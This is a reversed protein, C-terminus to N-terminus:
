RGVAVPAAGRRDLGQERLYHSLLDAVELNNLDSIPFHTNGTVGMDPLHLLQADGGHSNVAEVFLAAM